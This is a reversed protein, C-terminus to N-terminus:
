WLLDLQERSNVLCLIDAPLLRSYEYPAPCRQFDDEGDQGFGPTRLLEYLSRKLVGAVGWARGLIATETAHPIAATSLASLSSPWMQLISRTAWDHFMPFRLETSARLVASIIPFPPPT